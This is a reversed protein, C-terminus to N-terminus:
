KQRRVEEKLEDLSKTVQVLTKNNDDLARTTNILAVTVEKTIVKSQKSLEDIQEQYKKQSEQSLIHCEHGIKRLEEPYSKIAEIFIRQQEADREAGQKLLNTIQSNQTSTLKIIQNSHSKNTARYVFLYGATILLIPGGVSLSHKIVETWDVDIM